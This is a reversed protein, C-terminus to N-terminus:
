RVVGVTDLLVLEWHLQANPFRFFWVVKGVMGWAIELPRDFFSLCEFSFFVVFLYFFYPWLDSM